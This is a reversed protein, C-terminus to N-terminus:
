GREMCFGAGSVGGSSAASHKAKFNPLILEPAYPVAPTESKATGNWCYEKFCKNCIDPVKTKTRELSRSLVACGVCAPWNADLTANGMTAVLYGNQVMANRTTTNYEVEFTSTNSNFIYPANPLYVIIPAPGTMNKSDCGFFTPRKNLGLNVITNQDPIAPFATGNQVAPNMSRAYTAVIATGNPWNAAPALTDASSDVAFIIDLNREPQILPHLPINQLDEGGDVLTLSRSKAGLNKQTNWGLFPNPSWDAIDEESKGVSELISTLATKVLTPIGSVSGINIIFQNFLSSSTGMIYGANDFGAICKEKSGLVGASFNSGVYALPAFGYLMPDHSGMEWPNFEFVTANLSILVEGPARGDAVIIPMPVNGDTFASTQSISSWTYGPGGATANILQYSLARGWYDTITTNFGKAAKSSVGSWLETFYKVTDLVGNQPGELLNRSFQWFGGTASKAAPTSLIDQVATFNNVYMSGVLWSGGSLGSLYTTSQLLGGLHGKSTSNATRSDFAALAGAGNLLARYGGGSMAVGINPINSMNSKHNDIYANTDLGTIGMRGLLDKLPAITNARRKQLWLTEQQSLSGAIRIAPQVSPCNVDSPTYGDPANDLARKVLAAEFGADLEIQNRASAELPNGQAVALLASATLLIHSLM